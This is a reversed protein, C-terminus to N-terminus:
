RTAATKSLPMAEGLFAVARDIMDRWNPLHNRHFTIAVGFGEYPFELDCGISGPSEEARCQLRLFLDDYAAVYQTGRPYSPRFCKERGEWVYASLGDGVAAGRCKQIWESANRLARISRDSALSIFM